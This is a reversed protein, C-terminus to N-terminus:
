VRTLVLKFHQAWGQAARTPRREPARSLRMVTAAWAYPDSLPLYVPEQGLLELFVAHPPCVVPTGLAAAELAPLGFGEALTPFLLARAGALLHAVDADTLGSLESVRPAAEIRAFLSPDAWGRRGAILLCPRDLEPLREWADLLLAHNKRPEITGLAIFYPAAPRSVTAGRPDAIEVGLPAVIGDPVRGAARLHVESTARTCAASHIVLDAGAAAKLKHRFVEATGPRCLEPHDLPITDHLFVATRLGAARAAAMTGTSLNAHGTNLYVAGGPLHRALMRRLGHAWTRAFASRRVAAESRALGPNSRRTLWGLLDAQGAVTRGAVLDLVGACGARDLLLFGAVTRVLGWLPVPNNVLHSLYATEVRDIGTLPGQGM